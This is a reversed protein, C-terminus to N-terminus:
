QTHQSPMSYVGNQFTPMPQGNSLVQINTHPAPVNQPLSHRGEPASPTAPPPPKPPLTAPTGWKALSSQSPLQSENSSNSQGKRPTHSKTEVPQNFSGFQLLSIPQGLPGSPMSSAVGQSSMSVNLQSTTMQENPRNGHPPAQPISSPVFSRIQPNFAQQRNYSGPLPHANRSGPFQPQVPLQGYQYPVTPNNQIPGRDQSQPPLFQQQNRQQHQHAYQYPMQAWQQDSMPNQPQSLQANNSLAPSSMASSQQDLAPSQHPQQYYQSPMQQLYGSLPNVGNVANMTQGNGIQYHQMPIPYGPISTPAQYGPGYGLPYLAAGLAGPQGFTTTQQPVYPNFYASPSIAPDIPSVPYQMAPYYPSFQSRAEFGDDNNRQRRSKKKGTESSTRSIAPGDDGNHSADANESDEFGKFIRERTEKYKAEREERTMSAKDKALNSETPSVVGTAHGSDDGVESGAKSPAISSETTNPGSDAFQGEKGQGTRRMIKMTPQASPGDAPVQGQAFKSLPMRSNLMRNICNLEPSPRPVLMKCFPTKQLRVATVANDVQHTLAYYDALKHALLRCFSNCPPLDLTEGRLGMILLM